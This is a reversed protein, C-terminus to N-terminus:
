LMVKGGEPLKRALFDNGVNAAHFWAATNDNGDTYIGLATQHSRRTIASVKGSLNVLQQKGHSRIVSRCCELAGAEDMLPAARLFLEAL